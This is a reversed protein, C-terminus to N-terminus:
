DYESNIMIKHVISKHITQLVSCEKSVLECVAAKKHTHKTNNRVTLLLLLIAHTVTGKNHYGGVVTKPNSVQPM